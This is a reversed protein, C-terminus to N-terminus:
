QRLNGLRAMIAEFYPIAYDIIKQIADDVMPRVNAMAEEIPPDELTEEVTRWDQAIVSRMHKNSRAKVDAEPVLWWWHDRPQWLYGLRFGFQCGSVDDAEINREPWARPRQIRGSTPFEGTRSWACEVTFCDHMQHFGLIIFAHWDPRPSWRFVRWGPPVLADPDFLFTSVHKKMQEEFRSRVAKGLKSRM